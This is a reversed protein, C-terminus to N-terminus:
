NWILHICFFLQLLMIGVYCIILYLLYCCIIAHVFWGNSVHCDFSEFM